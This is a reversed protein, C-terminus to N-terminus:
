RDGEALPRAAEIAESLGGPQDISNACYRDWATVIKRLADRAPTEPSSPPAFVQLVDRAFDHLYLSPVLPVLTKAGPNVRHWAAMCWEPTPSSPGTPSVSASPPAALRDLIRNFEHLQHDGLRLEQWQGAILRLFALDDTDLPAESGAAGIEPSLIAEIREILSAFWEPDDISAYGTGDPMARLKDVDFRAFIAKPAAGTGAPAASRVLQPSDLPPLRRRARNLNGIAEGVSGALAAAPSEPNDHWTNYARRVDNIFRADIRACQEDRTPGGPASLLATRLAESASALEQGAATLSGGFFIVRDCESVASRLRRILADAEQESLRGGSDRSPAPASLQQAKQLVDGGDREVPASPPKQFGCLECWLVDHQSLLLHGGCDPCRRMPETWRSPVTEDTFYVRRDASRDTPAGDARSEPADSM